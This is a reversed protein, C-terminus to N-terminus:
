NDESDEMEKEVLGEIALKTESHSFQLSQQNDQVATKLLDYTQRNTSIGILIRIKDTNELSRYIAHFGSTFFYGVLCDFLKTDKILVEFRKKLNQSHENTIFTLDTIPKHRGAEKEAM